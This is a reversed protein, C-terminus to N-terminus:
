SKVNGLAQEGVGVGGAGGSFNSSASPVNCEEEENM